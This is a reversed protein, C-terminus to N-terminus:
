VPVTLKKTFEGNASQVFFPLPAETLTEGGDKSTCTYSEFAKAYLKSGNASAAICQWNLPAPPALIRKIWYWGTTGNDGSCGMVSFLAVALVFGRLKKIM